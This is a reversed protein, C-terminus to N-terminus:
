SAAMGLVSRDRDPLCRSYFRARQRRALSPFHKRVLFAAWADRVHAVLRAEGGWSM